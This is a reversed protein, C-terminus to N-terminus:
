GRTNGGESPANAAGRPVNAAGTLASGGLEVAFSEGTVAEFVVRVQLTRDAAEALQKTRDTADGPREPRSAAGVPRDLREDPLKVDVVRRVRVDRNLTQIVAVRVRERVLLASSEEALARVGDFGFTTNFLDSGLLTTLAVSLDQTLCDIGSVFALDRKGNAGVALSLDRGIDGEPDILDLRLGRGLLRARLADKEQDRNSAM